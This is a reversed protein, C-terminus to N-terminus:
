PLMDGVSPYSGVAIPLDDIVEVSVRTGPSLKAVRTARTVGDNVVLERDRGRSVLLTPMGLISTGFKAIQQQLKAPDAGSRRTTPLRLVRPDVDLFLRPNM